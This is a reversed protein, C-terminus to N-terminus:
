NVVVSNVVKSLTSWDDVQSSAAEARYYDFVCTHSGCAFALLSAMQSDREGDVPVSLLADVRIATVNGMRALKPEGVEVVEGDQNEAIDSLFNRIWKQYEDRATASSQIDRIMASTTYGDAMEVRSIVWQQRAKASGPDTNVFVAFTNEDQTVEWVAPVRLSLAGQVVNVEQWKSAGTGTSTESVVASTYVAPLTNVQKTVPPSVAAPGVPTTVQGNGQSFEQSMIYYAALVIFLVIVLAGFVTRGRKKTVPATQVTYIGADPNARQHSGAVASKGFANRVAQALEPDSRFGLSAQFARLADGARGTNVFYVGLWKLYDANLNGDMKGDGPALLAGITYFLGWPFGWWGFLASRTKAKQM